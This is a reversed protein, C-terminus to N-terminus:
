ENGAGKGLKAMRNARKQERVLDTKSPGARGALLGDLGLVLLSLVVCVWITQWADLNM